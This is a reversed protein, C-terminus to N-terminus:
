GRPSAGVVLTDGVIHACLCAQPAHTQERQTRGQVPVSGARPTTSRAVGGVTCFARNMTSVINDRCAFIIQGIHKSFEARSMVDPLNGVAVFGPLPASHAAPAAGGLRDLFGRKMKSASSAAAAAAAAPRPAVIPACSLGHVPAGHSTAGNVEEDSSEEETSGEEGSEESEGAEGEDGEDGEGEDEEEGRTSLPMLHSSHPPHQSGPKPTPNPPVNGPSIATTQEM